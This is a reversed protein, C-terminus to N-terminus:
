KTGPLRELDEALERLATLDELHRRLNKGRAFVSAMVRRRIWSALPESYCRAIAEGVAMSLVLFAGLLLM